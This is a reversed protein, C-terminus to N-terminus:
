NVPRVPRDAPLSVEKRLCLNLAQKEDNCM